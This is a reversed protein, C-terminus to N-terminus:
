SDHHYIASLVLDDQYGPFPPQHLITFWHITGNEEAQWLGCYASREFMGEAVMWLYLSHIYALGVTGATMLDTRHAM